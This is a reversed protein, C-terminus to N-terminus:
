SGTNAARVADKWAIAASKAAEADADTEHNRYVYLSILRSNVPMMVIAMDVTKTSSQDAVTVQARMRMLLGIAGPEDLYLELPEINDVALDTKENLQEGVRQSAQELESGIMGKAQEIIGKWDARMGSQLGGFQTVSVDIAEFARLSQVVAWNTMDTGAELRAVEDTSTFTALHRNDKPMGAEVVRRIPERNATIEVWEGPAPLVIARGGVEVTVSRPDGAPEVAATIPADARIPASIALLFVTALVRV